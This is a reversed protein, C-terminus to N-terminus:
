EAFFIVSREESDIGLLSCITKIENAKFESKNNIKQALSFRSIGIKEAIYGRKYGSDTIYKELLKTETM